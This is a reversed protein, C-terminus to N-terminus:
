QGATNHIILQASQRQTQVGNVVGRVPRVDDYDRGTPSSCTPTTPTAATRRTLAWGATGRRYVEVWAHM